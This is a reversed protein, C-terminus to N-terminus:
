VELENGKWLREGPKKVWEKSWSRSWSLSQKSSHSFFLSHTSASLILFICYDLAGVELNGFSWWLRIIRNSVGPFHILMPETPITSTTQIRLQLNHRIHSTNLSPRYTKGKKRITQHKPFQPNPISLSSPAPLQSSSHHHQYSSLNIISTRSQTPLNLHLKIRLIPNRKPVDLEWVM